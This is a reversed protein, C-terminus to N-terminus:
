CVRDLLPKGELVRAVNEYDDSRHSAYFDGSGAATHPTLLVNFDATRALALLPNNPKIPEWEFTDLAAGGIQGSRIADALASEDIVSGSGCHVFLAGPKMQAFVAANLSMDTEKAYPLLCCLIDSQQYIETPQAYTLGLENEVAVPLRSRKHYLIRAPRVGKVIRALEVGIEGFGLIGITSQYLSRIKARGSWNYAFINEDTRRSERWQGAANAVATVDPAKKALAIMQFLMHEAVMICGLVPTACVPIMARKAADVDIDHTLSGLRQILRLNPAAAIIESDIRGARETILFEADKVQQLVAKKDSHSLFNVTVSEPAQRRASQQHRPSRETLFLLPYPM